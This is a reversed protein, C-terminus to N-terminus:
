QEVTNLKGIKGVLSELGKMHWYKTCVYWGLVILLLMGGLSTAWWLGETPFSQTVACTIIFHLLGTTVGFDWTKEYERSGGERVILLVGPITCLYGLLTGVGIALGQDDDWDLDNGKFPLNAKFTVDLSLAMILCCIYLSAIFWLLFLGLKKLTSDRICM